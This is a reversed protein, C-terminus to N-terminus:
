VRVAAHETSDALPQKETVEAAVTQNVLSLCGWLLLLHTILIIPLVNPLLLWPIGAFQSILSPIEFMAFPIYFLTIWRIRKNRFTWLFAFIVGGLIAEEIQPLSVMLATYGAFVLALGVEPYRDRSIGAKWAKTVHWGVLALIGAQIAFTAAPIWPTFGFYRLLTQQVSHEGTNFMAEQGYWLMQSNAQRLNDIWAQLTQIGYTPGVAVLYAVNIAVFVAVAIAAMKILLRWERFVVLLMLPFLAWQPKAAILVALLAGAWVAKKDVLALALLASFLVLIPGINGFALVGFWDSAIVAIPLYKLMNSPARIKLRCYVRYWVLLGALYSMLLILNWLPWVISVPLAALWSFLMIIASHYRPSKLHYGPDTLKYPLSSVHLDARDTFAQGADLYTNLDFGMISRFDATIGMSDLTATDTTEIYLFGLAHIALWIIAVIWLAKYLRPLERWAQPIWMVKVKMGWRMWRTLVYLSGITMLVLVGIDIYFASDFVGDLAHRLADAAYTPPFFYSLWQLPLPLSAMPIFVPGAMLLMFLVVSVIINVLEMNDLLSGIMIGVASLALGTLPLLLFIWVNFQIQINNLWAGLLIPILMGPLTVVLRSLMLATVFAVKNIPLSAYYTLMGEKKMMGMRQAMSALSDSGVAFIASGSLIYILSTRDTLGSGVRTFGFMLGLPALLSLIVYWYWSAWVESVQELWLYKLDRFFQYARRQSKELTLPQHGVLQAM